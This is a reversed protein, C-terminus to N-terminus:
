QCRLRAPDDGVIVTALGPARGGSAALATVAEAIEARVSAAIAKGDIVQAPM